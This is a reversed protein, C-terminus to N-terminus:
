PIAALLAIQYAAIALYVPFLGLELAWRAIRYRSYLLVGVIGACAIVHKGLVFPLAGEEMLREMLPNLEEAGHAVHRLTGFADVLNLFVIALAVRSSARSLPRRWVSCAVRIPQISGADEWTGWTASAM